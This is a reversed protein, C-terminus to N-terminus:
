LYDVCIPLHRGREEEVSIEWKLQGINSLADQGAKGM